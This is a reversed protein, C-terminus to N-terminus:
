ARRSNPSTPDRLSAFRALMRHGTVALALIASRM